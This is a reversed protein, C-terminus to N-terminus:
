QKSKNFTARDPGGYPDMLYMQSEQMSPPNENKWSISTHDVLNGEEKEIGSKFQEQAKQIGDDVSSRLHEGWLRKRSQKAFSDKRDTASSDNRDTIALQLEGDHTLSRRNFNASGILTLEDDVLVLKSHVTIREGDRELHAIKFDGKAKSAISRLYEVGKVHNYTLSDKTTEKVVALVDVGRELAQALQYFPTVEKFGWDQKCSLPYGFPVFYFDEIYIYDEAKKFANLYSAWITFEGDGQWSYGKLNPIESQGFTRLVQIYHASDEPNIANELSLKSIKPPTTDWEPGTLRHLDLNPTQLNWIDSGLQVDDEYNLVFRDRSEDNWREIFSTHLDQLVRGTLKVGLDHTPGTYLSDNDPDHDEMGWRGENIDISGVLGSAGNSGRILTYKMHNSGAEPYRHDLAATDFGLYTISEENDKRKLVQGGIAVFVDVGNEHARKLHDLAKNKNGSHDAGFPNVNKIHWGAHFIDRHGAPNNIIEDIANYWEKMYAGGELIGHVKGTRWPQLNSDPFRRKPPFSSDNPHIDIIWKNPLNRGSGTGSM